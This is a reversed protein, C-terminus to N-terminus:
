ASRSIEAFRIQLVVQQGGAVELFNLVKQGYPAAVEEAQEAVQLSPVRGRLAITGNLSTVEIRSDPFMQRMHQQVAQLDFSVVVEVVQTRDEDDWLILQTAGAKKGTLLLDSPGVLSVDAIDPQSISVSKYPVRTKVVTGKNAMLTLVGNEPLDRVLQAQRGSRTAPRTAPAPATAPATAAADPGPDQALAGRPSGACLAACLAVAWAAAHRAPRRRKASQGVNRDTMLM